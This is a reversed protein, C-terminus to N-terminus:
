WVAEISESSYVWITKSMNRLKLSYEDVEQVEKNYIKNRKSSASFFVYIDQLNDYISTIIASQKACHEKFTNSRHGQCPIYPVPRELIDQLVRKAGAIRGSMNNAFDYTQFCLYNVNIENAELCKFICEATKDGHKDNCEKMEVVRERAIGKKGIYRAAVVMQDKNSVDPTTDASVSLMKVCEIEDKIRERVNEGLIELLENQSHVFNGNQDGASGRFAIGQRALTRAIDFLINMISKCKEEDAKEQIIIDKLHRNMQIDIHGQEVSFRAFDALAAQHAESSFHQALKGSKM